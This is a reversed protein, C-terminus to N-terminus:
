AGMARCTLFPLLLKGLNGRGPAGEVAQGDEELPSLLSSAWIERQQDPGCSEM